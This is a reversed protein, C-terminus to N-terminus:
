LSLYDKFIYKICYSNHSQLTFKGKQGQPGTSGSPGTAGTVGNQGDRGDNGPSGTAGTTGASGKQGKFGAPGSCSIIYHDAIIYTTCLLNTKVCLYSCLGSFLLM